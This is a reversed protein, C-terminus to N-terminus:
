PPCWRNLDGWQRDMGNDDKHSQSLWDLRLFIINIMSIQLVSKNKFELINSYLKKFNNSQITHIPFSKHSGFTQGHQIHM